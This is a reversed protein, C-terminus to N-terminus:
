VNIPGSLTFKQVTAQRYEANSSAMAGHSKHTRDENSQESGSKQSKINRQYFAPRHSGLRSRIPSDVGFMWAVTPAHCGRLNLARM